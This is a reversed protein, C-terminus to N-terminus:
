KYGLRLAMVEVDSDVVDSAAVDSAAVDSDDVKIWCRESWCLGLWSDGILAADVDGFLNLNKFVFSIM